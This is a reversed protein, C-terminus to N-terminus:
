RTLLLVLAQLSNDAKGTIGVVPAGSGGLRIEEGGAKNGAWDSMYSNRSNM